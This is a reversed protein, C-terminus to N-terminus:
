GSVHHLPLVCFSNVQNVGFYQRFGEISAMLTEWTHIAFRIKGSTGGTPILIPPIPSPIPPLSLSSIKLKSNQPKWQSNEAGQQQDKSGWAEAQQIRGQAKKEADKGAEGWVLDPNVLEFVQQWEIEGWDPNALVIPCNAIWAAIFYALFSIPHREALLITPPAPAPSRRELTQLVQQVLALFEQSDYGVLWDDDSRHKLYILPTM